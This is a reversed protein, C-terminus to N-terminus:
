ALQSEVILFPICMSNNSYQEKGDYIISNIHESSKNKQPCPKGALLCTTHNIRNFNHQILRAWIWRGNLRLVVSHKHSHIHMQQILLLFFAALFLKSEVLASFGSCRKWWWLELELAIFDIDIKRSAIAVCNGMRSSRYHLTMRCVNWAWMEKCGNSRPWWM